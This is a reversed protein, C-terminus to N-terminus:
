CNRIVHLLNKLTVPKRFIAALSLDDEIVEFASIVIVPVDRYRPDNRLNRCFTRGDMFPMTWDTLILDPIVGRDLQSLADIADVAEWVVFGESRLLAALTERNDRFDEVLLIVGSHM